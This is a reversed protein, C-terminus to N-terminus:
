HCYGPFDGMADEYGDRFLGQYVRCDKFNEKCFKGTYDRLMARNDFAVHITTGWTFGQCYIMSPDQHKYFPCLCGKATYHKAM